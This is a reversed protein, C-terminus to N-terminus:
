TTRGVPASPRTRPDIEDSSGALHAVDGWDGCRYGAADHLITNVGANLLSCSRPADLAQGSALRYACDIVGGHTVVAVRQGPHRAVIAGLVAEVRAYLVPITEGTAFDFALDRGVMRAYGDPDQQPLSEYLLGEFRGFHRERLRVDSQLALGTAAAIAAATDHARALDSAYIAALRDGALRAAVAAAQARGVANLAIDMQGQIRREHNWATEGHRILLLVTPDPPATQPGLATTM